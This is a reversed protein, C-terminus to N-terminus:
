IFLIFAEQVTKDSYYHKSYISRDGTNIKYTGIEFKGEEVLSKTLDLRSNENWGSWHIFFSYIIFFTLFIKVERSDKFLKM